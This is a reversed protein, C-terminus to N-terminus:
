EDRVRGTGVTAPDFLAARVAPETILERGCGVTRVPTRPAPEGGGRVTGDVRVRNGGLPGAPTDSGVFFNETLQPAEAM